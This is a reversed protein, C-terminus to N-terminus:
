SIIVTNLYRFCAGNQIRVSEAAVRERFARAAPEGNATSIVIIRQGAVSRTLVPLLIKKEFERKVLNYM